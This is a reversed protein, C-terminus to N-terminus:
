KRNFLLIYICVCVCVCVCVHIYPPVKKNCAAVFPQASLHELFVSSKPGQKSHQVMLLSCCNHTFYFCL